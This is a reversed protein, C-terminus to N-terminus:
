DAKTATTEARLERAKFLNLETRTRKRCNIHHKRFLRQCFDDGFICVSGTSQAGTFPLQNEM